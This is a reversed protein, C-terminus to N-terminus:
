KIEEMKNLEIIRKINRILGKECKWEPNYEKIMKEITKLAGYKKLDPILISDLLSSMEILLLTKDIRNM